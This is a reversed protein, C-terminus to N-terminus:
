DKEWRDIEGIEFGYFTRIQPARIAFAVVCLNRRYLEESSLEKEPVFHKYDGAIVTTEKTKKDIVFYLADANVVSIHHEACTRAIYELQAMIGARIEDSAVEGHPLRRGDFEEVDFPTNEASVVFNKGDNTLDTSYIDGTKPDRRFTPIVAVGIKQLDLRMKQQQVEDPPTGPWRPNPRKQRHMLRIVHDKLHGNARTVTNFKGGAGNEADQLEYREPDIPREIPDHEPEPM